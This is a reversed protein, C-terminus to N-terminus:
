WGGGLRPAVAHEIGLVQLHDLGEDVVQGAVGGHGEDLVGFVEQGGL